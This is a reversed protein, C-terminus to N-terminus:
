QGGCTGHPLPRTSATHSGWVHPLIEQDMDSVASEFSEPYRRTSSTRAAPNARPEPQSPLGEREVRPGSELVAGVVRAFAVMPGVPPVRVDASRMTVKVIGGPASDLLMVTVIAGALAAGAPLM